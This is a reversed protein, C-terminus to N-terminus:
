SDIEEVGLLNFLEAEDNQITQKMDQYTTHTDFERETQVFIGNAIAASGDLMIRRKPWRSVIAMAETPAPDLRLIEPVIFPRLIEKFSTTKLQLHLSLVAVKKGFTVGGTRSLTTLATDLIRLVEDAETWLAADKM